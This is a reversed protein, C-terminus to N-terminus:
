LKSLEIYNKLISRLTAEQVTWQTLCFTHVINGKNAKQIRLKKLHSTKQLSKKVLKFVVRTVDMTNQLCTVKNFADKLCFNLALGYFHTQLCKRKLSKIRSAAGSKAGVM